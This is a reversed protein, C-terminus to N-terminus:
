QYHMGSKDNLIEDIQPSSVAVVRDSELAEDNNLYPELLIFPREGLNDASLDKSHTLKVYNYGTDLWQQQIQSTFLRLKM